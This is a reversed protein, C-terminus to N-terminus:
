FEQELGGGSGLGRSLQKKKTKKKNKKSLGRSLGSRQIITKKQKKHKKKTKKSLGRSLGSRQIITKKTKKPKKRYLREFFAESVIVEACVGSFAYLAVQFHM